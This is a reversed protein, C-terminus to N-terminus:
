SPAPSSRSATSPQRSTACRMCSSTPPCSTARKGLSPAATPACAASSPTRPLAATLAPYARSNTSPAGTHGLGRGTMKAVFVEGPAMAAIMPVVALSTKDGVGGTSHKDVTTGPLASLDVVDGSNMMELTLTTTERDTMGRLFIAMLLASVQYDPIKGAVYGRVFFAIQEDTLEHGDRKAEIIDYMRM